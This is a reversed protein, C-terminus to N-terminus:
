FISAEEPQAKGRINEHRLAAPLPHLYRIFIVPDPRKLAMRGTLVVWDGKHLDMVFLDDFRRSQTQCRMTLPAARDIVKGDEARPSGSRLQFQYWHLGAQSIHEYADGILYGSLTLCDRAGVKDVHVWVGQVPKSGSCTWRDAVLAGDVTILKGPHFRPEIYSLTPEFAVCRVEGFKGKINFVLLETDDKDRQYDMAGCIVGTLTIRNLDSM